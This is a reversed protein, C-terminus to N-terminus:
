NLPYSEDREPQPAYRAARASAAKGLIDHLAMDYAAVASPNSHVLAGIEWLLGEIALPDKGILTDRIARAAAANTSQTEGTIPPFPCAEGVGTLGQDTVVRILLDNAASQEGISIRFPAVLPLDFTYIEVERIKLKKAAAKAGELKQPALGYAQGGAALAGFGIAKLFNKRSLSM